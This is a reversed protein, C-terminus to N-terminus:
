EPKDEEADPFISDADEDTVERLGTADLNITLGTDWTKFDRVAVSLVTKGTSRSAQKHFVYVLGECVMLDNTMAVIGQDPNKLLKKAYSTAKAFNM